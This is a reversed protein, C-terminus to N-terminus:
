SLFLLRHVIVDAYRRIPSTFHTYHDFNLAYHHWSTPVSYATDGTCFYKAPNMPKTCMIEMVQSLAGCSIHMPEFSGLEYRNSILKTECMTPHRPVLLRPRSSM